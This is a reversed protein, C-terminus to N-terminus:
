RLLEVEEDEPACYSSKKTGPVPKCVHDVGMESRCCRYDRTVSYKVDYHHTEVYADHPMWDLALGGCVEYPKAPPQKGHLSAFGMSDARNSDKCRYMRGDVKPIQPDTVTVTFANMSCKTRMSASARSKVLPRSRSLQRESHFRCTRRLAKLTPSTVPTSSRGVRCRLQSTGSRSALTRMSCRPCLSTPRARSRLLTRRRNWLSPSRASRTKSTTEPRMKSLTSYRIRALKLPMGPYM